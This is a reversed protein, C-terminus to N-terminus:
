PPSREECQVGHGRIRISACQREGCTDDRASGVSHNGDQVGRRQDGRTRHRRRIDGNALAQEFSEAAVTEGNKRLVIANLIPESKPTPTVVPDRNNEENNRSYHAHISIVVACAGAIAGCAALTVPWPSRKLKKHEAVPEGEGAAHIPRLDNQVVEPNDLLALVEEASQLRDAPDKQMLRGILNALKPSIDPNLATVPTPDHERVKQLIALPRTGTFPLKATALYYLVSGFSFLDSRADIAEEGAQEPSMFLPTGTLVGSQTVAPDWLARVLGFDAIRIRDSGPELMLNAPKIDRHILGSDHARALGAAVQRAVNEIEESPLPKGRARMVGDLSHGDIFPMVFFPVKASHDVHYIPLINEHDLAAAARAERVFRERAEPESSLSPKLVKIAVTRSLAPDNAKLVVGMGGAAIKSEVEYDGLMGILGLRNPAELIRTLDEDCIADDSREKALVGGLSLAGRQQMRGIFESFENEPNMSASSVTEALLDRSISKSGALEGIREQCSACSALHDEIARADRASSAGVIVELLASDEPCGVPRSGSSSDSHSM